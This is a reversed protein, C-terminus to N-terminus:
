RFQCCSNWKLVDAPIINLSRVLTCRSVNGVFRTTIFMATWADIPGQYTRGFSWHPLVLSGLGPVVLQHRGAALGMRVQRGLTCLWTKPRRLM